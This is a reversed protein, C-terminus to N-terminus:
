LGGRRFPLRAGEPLQWGQCQCDPCLGVDDNVKWDSLRLDEESGARFAKRCVACYGDNTIFVDSTAASRFQSFTGNPRWSLFGRVRVAPGAGRRPRPPDDVASPSVVIPQPEAVEVEEADPVAEEPPALVETGNGASREGPAKESAEPIAVVDADVQSDLEREVTAAELRLTEVLEGLPVELANIREFVRRASEVADRRTAEADLEASRRIEEARREALEIVSNAHENVTSGVPRAADARSASHIRRSTRYFRKL